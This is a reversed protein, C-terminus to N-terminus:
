SLVSRSLNFVYLTYIIMQTLVYLSITIINIHGFVDTLTNKYRLFM